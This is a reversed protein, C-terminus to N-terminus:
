YIGQGLDWQRSHGLGQQALCNLLINERERGLNEWSDSGKTCNWEPYVQSTCAQNAGAKYQYEIITGLVSLNRSLKCRQVAHENELPYIDIIITM